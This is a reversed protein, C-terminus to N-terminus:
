QRRGPRNKLATDIQINEIRVDEAKLGDVNVYLRSPVTLRISRTLCSSELPGNYEPRREQSVQLLKSFAGFRDRPLRALGIADAKLAMVPSLAAPLPPIV